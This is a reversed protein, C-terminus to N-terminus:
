YDISKIGDSIPDGTLYFLPDLRRKIKLNHYFSDFPSKAGQGERKIAFGLLGTTDSQAMNMGFIVVHTGSVAQVVVEGLERERM